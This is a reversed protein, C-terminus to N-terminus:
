IGEGVVLMNCFLCYIGVCVSVIMSLSSLIETVGASRMLNKILFSPMVWFSNARRM